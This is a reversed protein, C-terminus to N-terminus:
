INFVSRIISAGDKTITIRISSIIYLKFYIWILSCKSKELRIRRNLKNRSEKIFDNLNIGNYIFGDRIAIITFDKFQRISITEKAAILFFNIGIEKFKPIYKKRKFFAGIFITLLIM